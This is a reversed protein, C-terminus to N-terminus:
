YVLLSKATKDQWSFDNLFSLNILVAMDMVTYGAKHCLDAAASLTGGTALVDDVILIKGTGSQIELTSSGYELDYDISAGANPLKGAKRINVLGKNMKYALASSFIFGRSEIGAIIDINNWQADSLLSAMKEITEHMKEKLLPSIDKFVVGEKPFNPVDNIYKKLEIM